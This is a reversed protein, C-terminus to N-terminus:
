LFQLLMHQLVSVSVTNTHLSVHQSKNNSLYTFFLVCCMDYYM